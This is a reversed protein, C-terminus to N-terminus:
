RWVVAVINVSRATLEDRAVAKRTGVAGVSEECLVVEVGAGNVARSADDSSSVIVAMTTSCSVGCGDSVTSLLIETGQGSQSRQSPLPRYTRADGQSQSEGIEADRMMVDDEDDKRDASNEAADSRHQFPPGDLGISRTRIEDLPAPFVYAASLTRKQKNTQKGGQADM